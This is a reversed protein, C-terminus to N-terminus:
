AHSVFTTPSWLYALGHHCWSRSREPRQPAKHRWRGQRRCSSPSITCVSVAMTIDARQQQLGGPDADIQYPGHQPSNRCGPTSATWSANRTVTDCSQGGPSALSKTGTFPRALDHYQSGFCSPPLSGQIHSLFAYQTPSPTPRYCLIRIEGTKLATYHYSIMTSIIPEEDLSLRARRQAKSVTDFRQGGGGGGRSGATAQSVLSGGPM